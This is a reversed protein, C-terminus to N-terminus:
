VGRADEGEAVPSEAFRKTEMMSKGDNIELQEEWFRRCRTM